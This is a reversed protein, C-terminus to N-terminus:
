RRTLRVVKLVDQNRDMLRVLYIGKRLDTVDHSQGPRHTDALINKGVINFIALSAVNVDDHIQFRDATPNPFLMIHSEFGSEHTNSIGEVIWSINTEAIMQSQSDCETLLRFNIDHNGSEGNPKLYVSFQYTQNAELFAPADCPQSTDWDYCTNNDCVKFSWDSPVEATRVVEWYFDIRQDSNNTLTVSVASNDTGAEITHTLGRDMTIQSFCQAAAFVLLFLLISRM